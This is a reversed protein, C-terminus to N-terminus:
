DRRNTPKATPCTMPEKGESGAASVVQILPLSIFESMDMIAWIFPRLRGFKPRVRGVKPLCIASNASNRRVRGFSPLIQCGNPLKISNKTVM